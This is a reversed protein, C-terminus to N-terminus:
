GWVRGWGMGSNSVMGIVREGGVVVRTGGLIWGDMGNRGSTQPFTLPPFFDYLYYFGM